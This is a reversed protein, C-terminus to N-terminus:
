LSQTLARLASDDVDMIIYLMTKLVLPGGLQMSNVGILGELIKNWLTKECTNLLHDRPWALNDVSYEQGYRAYYGNSTRVEEANIRKFNKLLDILM